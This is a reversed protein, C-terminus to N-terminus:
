RLDYAHALDTRDPNTTDGRMTAKEEDIRAQINSRQRELDQRIEGLDLKEDM